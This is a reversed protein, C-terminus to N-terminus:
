QTISEMRSVVSEGGSITWQVGCVGTSNSWITCDAYSDQYIICTMSQSGLRQAAFQPVATGAVMTERTWMESRWADIDESFSWLLKQLAADGEPIRYLLIDYATPAAGTGKMYSFYISLGLEESTLLIGDDKEETTLRVDGLMEIIGDMSKGLMTRGDIIGGRMTGSYLVNGLSNYIVGQGNPKQNVATGEYYVTGNHSILADGNQVGQLFTGELRFDDSLYLTGDGDYRNNKFEGSYYPEGNESYATGEGTWNGRQFSGSYAQVGNEAYAIGEGTQEGAVFTGRYSTRGNPYYLYCDSGNLKGNEYTGTSVLLGSKYEEGIGSYSGNFFGGRYILEGDEYEEGEGSRKGDLFEGEYVLVGDSDYQKGEGQLLGDKLYGQYFPITKKDDYYVIVKGTYNPLRSNRPTMRATFFYRMVLPYLVFYSIAIALILFLIARFIFMKSIFMRKTEVFDSRSAPKQGVQSINKTAKSMVRTAGRAVQTAQRIKTWVNLVGRMLFAKVSRLGAGFGNLLERLLYGIM